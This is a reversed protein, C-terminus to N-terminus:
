CREIWYPVTHTMNLTSDRLFTYDLFKIRQLWPNKPSSLKHNSQECLIRITIFYLFNLQTPNTHHMIALSICMANQTFFICPFLGNSLDSCQLLITNILVQSLCIKFAFSHVPNFQENTLETFITISKKSWWLLFYRSWSSLLWSSM